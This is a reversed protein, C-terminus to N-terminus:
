QCFRKPKHGAKPARDNGNKRAKRSEGSRHSNKEFFIVPQWDCEFGTKSCLWSLSIYLLFRCDDNNGMKCVARPMIRGNRLARCVALALRPLNAAFFATKRAKIDSKERKTQVKVFVKKYNQPSFTM